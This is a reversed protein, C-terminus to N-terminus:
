TVDTLIYKEDYPINYKKQAAMLHILGSVNNEYYEDPKLTSEDVSKLAAFHIIAKTDRHLDFVRFVEQQQRLDIPHNKIDAGTLERIRDFVKPSSNIFNDIAVVEYGKGALAILTHSGIYGGAGTVIVKM